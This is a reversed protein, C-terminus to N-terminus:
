ISRQFPRDKVHARNNSMWTPTTYLDMTHAQRAELEQLSKLHRSFELAEFGGGFLEKDCGGGHTMLDLRQLLVQAHSQKLSAHAGQGKGIGAAVIQFM